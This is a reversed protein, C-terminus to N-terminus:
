DFLSKGYLDEESVFRDISIVTSLRVSRWAKKDFDWYTCVNDNLKRRTTPVDYETFGTDKTDKLVSLRRSGKAQRIEGNKKTFTFTVIGENLMDKLSVEM